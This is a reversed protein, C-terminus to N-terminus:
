RANWANLSKTLLIVIASWAAGIVLVLWTPTSPHRKAYLRGVIYGAIFMVASQFVNM